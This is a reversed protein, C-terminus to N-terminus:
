IRPACIRVGYKINFEPDKLQKTKPRNAFCPGNACQFQAALGDSPMVQMLGVAGSRSFSQPNGGSEQWIVAAILDPPLNHQDAFRTILDCWKYVRDPFKRSVKCDGTTAASPFDGPPSEDMADQDVESVGMTTQAPQVLEDSVIFASTIFFGVLGVLICGMLAGRVVLKPGMM